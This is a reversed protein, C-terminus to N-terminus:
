RWRAVFRRSADGPMQGAAPAALFVSLASVRCLVAFLVDCVCVLCWPPSTRTRSWCRARRASRARWWRSSTRPLLRVSICSASMNICYLSSMGRLRSIESTIRDLVTCGLSAMRESFFRIPFLFGLTWSAARFTHLGVSVAQPSM